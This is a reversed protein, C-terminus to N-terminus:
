PNKGMKKFMKAFQKSQEFKQLLQNILQSNTGSGSAIRKKRSGDLIQPYLREKRTMSSLIARFKKMEQQGQEIQDASVNGAGPMYKMIKQLSGMKSVMDIQSAFDELTFDGRLMRRSLKEQEHKDIKEEAKEILSLVDGMGLIRSAIRKPIFRDLDEIKEGTGIFSIPKKLVYRFAFAAGGRTDSDMKTLIASKFGIKSDFEKAVNLSEQGTMSDLVLFSHRPNVIKTVRQLEDMMNDDVHLRGATDLILFDYRNAKFHAYIEKTATIPDTSPARFFDINSGGSLRRALIELQDIAAPRYFDVSSILITKNKKYHNALKAVTTTKGSGQLGMVTIVSPTPLSITNEAQREGQLFLLLTDHVIKIFHDGPKLKNHTKTGVAEQSIKSLFNKVVDYPVDAQILASKVQELAENINKESLSGKGTMWNLVGSFKKSLFDFMRNRFFSVAMLWITSPEL